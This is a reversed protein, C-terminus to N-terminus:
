LVVCKDVKEKTKVLSHLQKELELMKEELKARDPKIEDEMSLNRGALFPCKFNELNKM